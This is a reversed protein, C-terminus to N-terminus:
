VIHLPLDPNVQGIQSEEFTTDLVKPVNKNRWQLLSDSLKDDSYDKSFGSNLEKDLGINHIYKYIEM